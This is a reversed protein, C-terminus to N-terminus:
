DMNTTDGLGVNVVMENDQKREIKINRDRM